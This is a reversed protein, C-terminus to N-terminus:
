ALGLNTTTFNFSGLNDTTRTPIVISTPEGNERLLNVTVDSDLIFPGKQAAGDIRVRTIGTGIIGDESCNICAFLFIFSVVSIKFNM